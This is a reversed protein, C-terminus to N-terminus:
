KATMSWPLIKQPTKRARQIALGGEAIGVKEEVGARERVASIEGMGSVREASDAGVIERENHIICLVVALIPALFTLVLFSCLCLHQPLSSM